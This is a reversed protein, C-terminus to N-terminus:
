NCRPGSYYGRAPQGDTEKRRDSVERHKTWVFSFEVKHNKADPLVIMTCLSRYFRSM